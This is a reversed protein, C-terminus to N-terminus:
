GAPNDRYFGPSHGTWRRFARHLASAESFGLRGALEDLSERDDTVAALALARRLGDCVATYSSGEAALHRRLSAPSFSLSAAARPLTPLVGAAGLEEEVVRRVRAAFGTGYERRALLDAPSNRLFAALAREDRQVSAQLAFRSFVLASAARGFVAPAGFLQAYEASHTPAAFDLEVVEPRLPARTLWGGFRHWIMLVSETLFVGAGPELELRTGDGSERLHFRLGGPFLNYFAVARGLATHLDPCHVALLGMTALTGRRSPVPWQGMLEDDLLEWVARILRTFQDMSVAAPLPQNIGAHSLLAPVEGVAIGQVAASVHHAGIAPGTVM